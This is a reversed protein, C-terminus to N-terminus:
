PEHIDCSARKNEIYYTVFKSINYVHQHFKTSHGTFCICSAQLMTEKYYHIEHQFLDNKTQM